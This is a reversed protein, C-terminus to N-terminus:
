NLDSNMETDHSFIQLTKNAQAEFEDFSNENREHVLSRHASEEKAKTEYHMINKGGDSLNSLSDNIVRNVKKKKRILIYQYTTIGKIKLWIHFCILYGDAVAIIISAILQIIVLVVKENSLLKSELFLVDILSIFIMNVELCALLACFLRYNNMGICNNLWFCHHDFGDVCKNCQSCHKSSETVFGSCISCFYELNQRM